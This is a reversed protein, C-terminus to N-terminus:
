LSIEEQSRTENRQSSAIAATIADLLVQDNVPKPLYAAAGAALARDHTEVSDHGTIIVVPLPRSEQTLQALVDFGTMAPMHIDLV